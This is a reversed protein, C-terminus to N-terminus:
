FKFVAYTTKQTPDEPYVQRLNTPHELLDVQRQPIVIFDAGVERALSRLELDSYSFLGFESDLQPKCFIEVLRSWRLIQDNQQPIDKWNVIETRGAYWKFTQQNFPTLFRAEGPTNLKIWECVRRWNRFTQETRLTDDKYSPLSRQDAIPRPDELKEFAALGFAIGILSTFVVAAIRSSAHNANMGLEWALMTVMLSTALPIAFDSLRFWYLRLLVVALQSDMGNSTEGMGSLLLGGVSIFLTGLCFWNLRRFKKHFVLMRSLALWLVVMTVFSAVRMTAFRSFDLHHSIRQKVYITSALMTTHWDSGSNSVLPPVIGILAIAFGIALFGTEKSWRTKDSDVRAGSIRSEATCFSTLRCFVMAVAAWGGVLVHFASACGIWIWVKNWDRKMLQELALLVFFYAFGKAEVGGVIWEGAMHFRDNAILFLMAAVLPFGTGPNIQRCLRLWGVALLVAVAIRGIWATTALSFFLTLWGTSVYFLWHSPSASLFIDGPCWDPNWFHKAKTLYHSENVGPAWGGWALFGIILILAQIVFARDLRIPSHSNSKVAPEVRGERATPEQAPRNVKFFM